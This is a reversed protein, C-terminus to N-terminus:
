VLLGCWIRILHAQLLGVSFCYQTNLEVGIPIFHCERVKTELYYELAGVANKHKRRADAYSVVNGDVFSLNVESNEDQKCGECKLKLLYLLSLRFNVYGRWIAKNRRIAYGSCCSTLRVAGEHVCLFITIIGCGHWLTLPTSACM